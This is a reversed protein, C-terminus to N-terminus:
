EEHGEDGARWILTMENRSSSVTGDCCIFHYMAVCRLGGGCGEGLAGFLVRGIAGGFAM